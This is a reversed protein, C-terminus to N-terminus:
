CVVARMADSLQENTRQSCLAWCRASPPKSVTAVFRLNVSTFSCTMEVTRDDNCLMWKRRTVYHEPYTYLWTSHKGLARADQLGYYVGSDMVLCHCVWFTRCPLRWQRGVRIGMDLWGHHLELVSIRIVDGRIASRIQQFEVMIQLMFCGTVIVTEERVTDSIGPPSIGM